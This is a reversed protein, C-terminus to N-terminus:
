NLSLIILNIAVANLLYFIKKQKSITRKLYRLLM